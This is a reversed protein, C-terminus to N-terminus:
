FGKPKQKRYDTDKSFIDKMLIHYDANIGEGNKGVGLKTVGFAKAAAARFASPDDFYQAIDNMFLRAFSKKGKVFLNSIDAREVCYIFLEVDYQKNIVEITEINGASHRIKGETLKNYCEKYPIPKGGKRAQFPKNQIQTRVEAESLNKNDSGDNDGTSLSINKEAETDPVISPQTTEQVDDLSLGYREMEHYIITLFNSIGFIYRKGIGISKEDLHGSDLQNQQMQSSVKLDEIDMKIIYKWRDHNHLKEIYDQAAQYIMKMEETLTLKDNEYKLFIEKYIELLSKM